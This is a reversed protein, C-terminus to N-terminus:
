SKIKKASKKRNRRRNRINREKESIQQQSKVDMKPELIMDDCLKVFDVGKEKIINYEDIITNQLNPPFKNHMLKNYETHVDKDFLVEVYKKNFDTEDSLEGKENRMRDFMMKRKIWAKRNVDQNLLWQLPDDIEGCLRSKKMNNYLSIAVNLIIKTLHCSIGNKECACIIAGKYEVSLEFQRNVHFM